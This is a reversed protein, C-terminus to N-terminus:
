FQFNISNEIFDNQPSTASHITKYTIIQQNTEKCFFCNRIGQKSVQIHFMFYASKSSFSFYLKFDPCNILSECFNYFKAKKALNWALHFCPKNRAFRLLFNENIQVSKLNKKEKNTTMTYFKTTPNVRNELADGAAANNKRKTNAIM